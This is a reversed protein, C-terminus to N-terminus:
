LGSLNSLTITLTITLLILKEQFESIYNYDILPHEWSSKCSQLILEVQSEFMYDYNYNKGFILEGFCFLHIDHKSSLPVHTKIVGWRIGRM